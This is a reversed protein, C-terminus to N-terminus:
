QNLAPLHDVCYEEDDGAIRFELLPDSVETRGCIKCKHFSEGELASEGKFRSRRGAVRAGHRWRRLGLPVAFLAYPLLALLLPLRMLPVAFFQFLLFAGNLMALWRVQVPLIFFIMFTYRPVVTAFALFLSSYLLTSAQVGVLQGFLPGALVVGAWLGVVTGAYYLNLRFKGWEAELQDGILLLIMVAFIIWLLSQTQPIFCFTFFRWVEWDMWAAPTLMLVTQFGPKLYILVFCIVQFSAIVRLLGPIALRDFRRELRDLFPSTPLNSVAFLTAM